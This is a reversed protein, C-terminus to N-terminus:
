NRDYRRGRKHRDDDDYDDGLFGGKKRQQKKKRDDDGEEGLFGGQNRRYKKKSNKYKRKAKYKRKYKYNNKRYKNKYHKHRLYPRDHEMEIEVYGSHLHSRLHLPLNVSFSWQGHTDLYFYMNRGVDFYFEANPYYHYMHHRRGYAPAHAPPANHGHPFGAELRIGGGVNHCGTFLLLSLASLLVIYKM